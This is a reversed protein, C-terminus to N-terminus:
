CVSQHGPWCAQDVLQGCESQRGVGDTMAWESLKVVVIMALGMMALGVIELGIM